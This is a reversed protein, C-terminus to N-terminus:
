KANRFKALVQRAECSLCNAKGSEGAEPYEGPDGYCADKALGEVFAVLAILGPSPEVDVYHDPNEAIDCDDRKCLPAHRDSLICYHKPLIKM